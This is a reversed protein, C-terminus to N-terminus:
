SNALKYILPVALRTGLFLQSATVILPSSLFLPVSIPPFFSTALLTLTFLTATSIATKIASDQIYEVFKELTIEERALEIAHITNEVLEDILVATVTAKAGLKLINEGNRFVSEFGNRITSRIIEYQKVDASGRKRNWKKIEWSMNDPKNSGGNANSRIHSGERGALWARVPRESNGLLTTLPIKRYMEFAEEYSRKGVRMGATRMREAVKEMDKSIESLQLFDQPIKKLSQNITDYTAAGGIVLRYLDVKDFTDASQQYVQQTAKSANDLVSILDSYLDIVDAQSITIDPLEINKIGELFDSFRPINIGSLQINSAAKSIQDKTQGVFKGADDIKTQINIEPISLGFTNIAYVPLSQAIFLTLSLAISIIQKFFM